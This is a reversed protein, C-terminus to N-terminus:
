NIKHSSISYGREQYFRYATRKATLWSPDPSIIELLRNFQSFIPIIDLALNIMVDANATPAHEALWGLRLSADANENGRGIALLAYNHRSHLQAEFSSAQAESEFHLYINHDARWVKLALRAAFDWRADQAGQSLIYFDVRTM